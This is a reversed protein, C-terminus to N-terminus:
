PTTGFDITKYAENTWVSEYMYTEEDYLVKKAAVDDYYM